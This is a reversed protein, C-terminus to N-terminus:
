IKGAKTPLLIPDVGASGVDFVVLVARGVPSSLEENGAACDHCDIKVYSINFREGAVAVEHGLEFGWRCLDWHREVAVCLLLVSAVHEIRKDLVADGRVAHQRM